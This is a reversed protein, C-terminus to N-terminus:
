PTQIRVRRKVPDSKSGDLKSIRRSRGESRPTVHKYMKNHDKELLIGKIPAVRAKNSAKPTKMSSPTQPTKKENSKPTEKSTPARTGKRAKKMKEPSRIKLWYSGHSKVQKYTRTPVFESVLKWRSGHKNYGQIFLEHEEETWIGTLVGRDESTPKFLPLIIKSKSVFAWFLATVVSLAAFCSLWNSAGGIVSAHEDIPEEEPSNFTPSLKMEWLHISSFSHTHTLACCLEEEEKYSLPKMENGFSVQVDITDDGSGEMVEIGRHLMFNNHVFFIAILTIPIIARVVGSAKVSPIARKCKAAINGIVKDYIRKLMAKSNPDLRAAIKHDHNSQEDVKDQKVDGELGINYAEKSGEDVVLKSQSTGDTETSPHPQVEISRKVLFGEALTRIVYEFMTKATVLFTNVFFMSQRPLCMVISVITALLSVVRSLYLNITSSKANNRIVDGEKQTHEHAGVEDEATAEPANPDTSDEPVVGPESEKPEESDVEPPIDKRIIRGIVSKTMHAFDSQGEWYKHLNEFPTLPTEDVKPSTSSSDADAMIDGVVRNLDLKLAKPRMPTNPQDEDPVKLDDKEAPHPTELMKFPTDTLSPLTLCPSLNDLIEAMGKVDQKIDEKSKRDDLEECDRAAGKVEEDEGDSNLDEVVEVKLSGKSSVKDVMDYDRGDLSSAEQMVSNGMSSVPSELVSNGSGVGVDGLYNDSSSGLSEMPHDRETKLLPHPSPEPTGCITAGVIGSKEDDGVLSPGNKSTEISGTDTADVVENGEDGVVEEGDAKAAGEHGLFHRENVSSSELVSSRPIFHSENSPSLSRAISTPTQCSM